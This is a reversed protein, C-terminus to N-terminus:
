FRIRGSVGISGRGPGPGITVRPAQASREYITANESGDIWVALIIVAPSVLAAALTRVGRLNSPPQHADAVAMVAVLGAAVALGKLAGDKRSDVIQITRVSRETFALEELPKFAALVLESSSLSSIQGRTSRGAEDTVIVEDGRALVSELAEFPAPTAPTAQAMAVIPMMVGACALGVVARARRCSM